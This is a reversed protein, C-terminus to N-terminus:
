DDRQVLHDPRADQVAFAEQSSYTTKAPVVSTGSTKDLIPRAVEAAVAFPQLLLACAGGALLAEILCAAIPSRSHDNM